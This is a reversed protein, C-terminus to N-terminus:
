LVFMLLVYGLAVFIISDLRDLVGGHGPMIKSFDKKRYLRKISSFVLDGLQGILSLLTTCLILILVSITDDIAIYYFVSAILVGFITGIILGEWTKKPSIVELLKHKGILCGSVYAYTDTMATILFLYFVHMMSYARLTIFLNFSIGLFFTVGILFLGDNINYVKNDHYIIIPLLFIFIILSISRYDLLYVFDNSESINIVLYAYVLYTILKMFSPLQKRKPRMELLEHLGILAIALIFVNFLTGGILTVPIFIGLGIFASILRNKM